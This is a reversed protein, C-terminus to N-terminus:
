VTDVHCIFFLFAASALPRARHIQVGTPITAFKALVAASHLYMDSFVTFNLTLTNARNSESQNYRYQERRCASHAHQVFRNLAFRDCGRRRSDLATIFRRRRFVSSALTHWRMFFRLVGAWRRRTRGFDFVGGRDKGLIILADPSVHYLYWVLTVERLCDLKGSAHLIDAAFREAIHSLLCNIM